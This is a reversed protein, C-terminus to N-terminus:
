VQSAPPAFRFLSPLESIKPYINEPTIQDNKHELPFIKKMKQERLKIEFCYYKKLYSELVLDIEKGDYERYFYPTYKLNNNRKIKEMELIVLNEFIGGRDPRIPLERFDRVLINRIGIDYFYLKRNKSVARRANTKFSLLPILIYNKIFIEIYNGVTAVSTQLSSALERLSVESGLQLAIKTLIDKALKADKLNYISIIDKIVYTDLINQLLDIKQDLNKQTHIEPYSGYIQFDNVIKKILNNEQYPSVQSNLIIEEVSLPLCYSEIFRGSLTDFDKSKQRIESSGTAIIQVKFRDHLIKLAPTSGPHNQVEDILILPSSSSIKELADSDPIFNEQDSLLDFNFIPVKHDKSVKELITTKGSRRPGWIFLMKDQKSKIYNSIIQEVKRVLM